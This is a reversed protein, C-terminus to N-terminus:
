LNGHKEENARDKTTASSAQSPKRNELPFFRSIM